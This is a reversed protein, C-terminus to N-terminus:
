QTAQKLAADYEGGADDLAEQITKQGSSISDILSSMINNSESADADIWARSILAAQDFITMYPDTSGLQILDNRVPPLYMTQSLASLNQASTLVSIIALASNLNPSTRVLSFGYMRGYAAKIGGTKLQPLSTVDFNLNPNKARIDSLESAFGFYTALSGSLFAAKSDPLSRNWSYTSNSPNIFQTFYQLASTPNAAADPKITSVLGNATATTVPNGLQLLLSGLLERANDVNSFTGMAVASKRVNGNQDKVTLTPVLATVQDWSVPPRAIGASNFTDRNWYMVLPDVTFPIAVIGNTTLYLSAEQIYSDMYTRQPIVTYPVVTLKDEQPLIMDAPVLIVDPAQGRSVATTFEQSFTSPDKQAYKITIPNQSTSNIQNVYSTLTDGPFTGWITISPLTTSSSSGKYLAFTAVGAIIFVIFIAIVVIQFISVKKM